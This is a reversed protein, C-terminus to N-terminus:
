PTEDEVAQEDGLYAAIVAPDSRIEQPTGEAIVRGYDLVYIRECIGMVVKMDHEIVLLTLKFEDRIQRILEMLRLKENPNMGAAPEDLLLLRPETALARVVELRRQDGYPLNKAQENQLRLLNFRKLLARAEEMSTAEERELRNTRFLADLLTTRRRLYCGIRVNELVTLDPFLRINQFTRSIGADAFQFPKLGPAFKRRRASLVAGAATPLLTGLLILLSRIDKLGPQNHVYPLISTAVIVSVVWAGIGTALTDALVWRGRQVPLSIRKGALAKGRFDITGETPEFVGTLLNFVTTKGAGNPGILGVLEGQQLTFNVNAVATLGGFRQTIDHLQLITGSEDQGGPSNFTRSQANLGADPEDAAAQAAEAALGGQVSGVPSRFRHLLRRLGSLSLEGMGFVGSPRVLMMIVLLIAYIVYRYSDSLGLETQPKKLLEPLLTLLVAALASGTISGSGGLVVMVVYNMSLMFGFAAPAILIGPLHAYLVGGVGALFAALVFASVKARTTNVGMADAAIEDERVSMFALGHSSYKLNRVVLITAIAVAFVLPFNALQPVNNFGSAGGMFSLRTSIQPCNELIVRIIEGFGLTVIALYDGRLRLSPVGVLWGAGAACVGGALMAPFIWWLPASGPSGLRVSALYTVSAGVYAGISMFGAHGISFQGALGNVINLSVALIIAVGCQLILSEVYQILQNYVFNGAALLMVIAVLWVAGTLLRKLPSRYSAPPASADPASDVTPLTSNDGATM